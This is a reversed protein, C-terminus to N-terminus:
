VGCIDDAIRGARMLFGILTLPVIFQSFMGNIDNAQAQIITVTGFAVVCVAGQLCCSAFKKVYRMGPGKAGGSVLQAMGVPAFCFRVLLEIFRSFSVLYAVLFALITMAWPVANQCIMGLCTFVISLTSFVGGIGGECARLIQEKIAQGTTTAAGGDGAAQAADEILTDGLLMIYEFIQAGQLVVVIAIVLTILKKILHEINFSDAQVEDLIEILFYLFILALGVVSMTDYMAKGCDILSVGDEDGIGSIAFAWKGKYSSIQYIGKAIQSINYDPHIGAATTCFDWAWIAVANNDSKTKIEELAANWGDKDMRPHEDDAHATPALSTVLTVVLLFIALLTFLKKKKNANSGLTMAYQM